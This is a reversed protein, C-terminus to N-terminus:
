GFFRRRTKAQQDNPNNIEEKVFIGSEKRKGIFELKSLSDFLKDTIKVFYVVKSINTNMDYHNFKLTAMNSLMSELEGQKLDCWESLYNLMEEKGSGARLDITNKLVRALTAMSAFLHAPQEHVMLWRLNTIAQGLYLMIRDCLFQVLESIDNQQNKKYIKQIILLCRTELKGLFQDIEGLLSLLDPHANITFCPPLYEEDVRVENGNVGVKGITLTYPHHEFQRFQSDSVVQLTYTPLAFPFRPPNEELDPSGAPQREFPNAVLVVWWAAEGGNAAFQYTTSPMDTEQPSGTASLAPLMIRVGGQTIAQCSIVNVRLTNQNDLTIKVNFTDEGAVSSPIVGYRIPTLFLATADCLASQAAQDTAIFHTKNIKMGDIWNVPFHKKTDRM